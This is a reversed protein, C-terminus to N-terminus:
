IENYDTAKTTKDIYQGNDKKWDEYTTPILEVNHLDNMEECISFIKGTENDIRIDVCWVGADRWYEAIAEYWGPYLEDPNRLRMACGDTGFRIYKPLKILEEKKFKTAM